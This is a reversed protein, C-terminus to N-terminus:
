ITKDLSNKIFNFFGSLLSYRLRKTSQKNGETFETLFVLITETTISEVEREGYQECFKSLILEYTRLTNKKSNMKHYEFYCDKAKSVQM